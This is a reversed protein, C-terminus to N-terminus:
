LTQHCLAWLRGERDWTGGSGGKSDLGQAKRIELESFIALVVTEVDGQSFLRM